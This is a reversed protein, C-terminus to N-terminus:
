IKERVKQLKDWIEKIRRDMWKEEKQSKWNGGSLGGGLYEEAEEWAASAARTKMVSESSSMPAQTAARRIFLSMEHLEWIELICPSAM